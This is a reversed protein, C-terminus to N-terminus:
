RELTELFKVNDNAEAHAKSLRGLETDFSEHAYFDYHLKAYAVM